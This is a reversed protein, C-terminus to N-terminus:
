DTDAPSEPPSVEGAPIRDRLWALTAETGKELITYKPVRFRNMSVDLRQLGGPGGLLGIRANLSNIDNSSCDLTMLGKVSRPSLERITNHSAFLAVLNPFHQRLPPLSTLRNFSIDLKELHPAHLHQTLPQLSNFTNSSLNLEKLVPLELDDKMFNDSNLENHALSLTTLTAAFFAISAPIENFKNHHLQLEKIPDRAAAEAASVPNLSHSQTNSRDLVGGAKVPWEFSTQNPSIPSVPASYFAGDTDTEKDIEEEPPAMRAKLARKLDTADMGAFKRDRLPNGSIRFIDLNEMCGIREDIVKINNGSFNVNKVKSLSVFGEPIDVISNDEAAITLLSIWSTLDPLGGIRNSSCNLQHLSPLSLQGSAALCTLSNATVDLLQLKPLEEVDASVLAGALKNKAALLEILPLNRLTTFPLSTLSNENVNLVRLHVLEAIGGPLSTLANRQLELTELKQLSSVREDLSGTLKNDGLKLDRLSPIQSIVEFCENGLKNNTLNLTTLLELRRLGLPLGMLVNGHLDLTELGGFQNGKADEDDMHERPDTDPFVHDHIVELENGAAVFRKLDVAEAWSGDEIADLNYMNMVEEPIEKFGMAAINLRGDSRAADIRKRLIGKSSDQGGQQNFPDGALGFDFTGSPIVPVEEGKAGTDPALKTAAARKAAKAKAIQDRLAMSSKRPTVDQRDPSVSSTATTASIKFTTSPAESLTNSFATSQKKPDFAVRDIDSAKDLASVSPKRFLGNVSARPKLPRSAFTKSGQRIGPSRATSKVPSPSRRALAGYKPSSKKSTSTDPTPPMNARVISPTKLSKGINAISPRKAPTKFTNTSARFDVPATKGQGLGLGPGGSSSPRSSPRSSVSRSPPRMSGDSLHSSGPRSSQFGSSPPRLPSESTFFSSNRKRVVPSSPISQLTEMTRESLSPRAKRPIKAKSLLQGESEELIHSEDEQFVGGEGRTDPRSQDDGSFNRSPKRFLTDRSPRRSVHQNSPTLTNPSNRNKSPTAPNRLKSPTSTASSSSPSLKDRSPANRLRPNVTSPKATQQLNLNERSPAPRLGARPVPLKSPRPLGSPRTGSTSRDM